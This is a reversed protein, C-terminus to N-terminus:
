SVPALFQYWDDRVLVKCTHQDIQYWNKEPVLKQCSVSVTRCTVRVTCRSPRSLQKPELFQSSSADFKENLNGTCTEPALKNLTHRGRQSGHRSTNDPSCVSASLLDSAALANVGVLFLVIKTIRAPALGRLMTRLSSLLRVAPLKSMSSVFRALASSMLVPVMLRM